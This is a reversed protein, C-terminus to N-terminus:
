PQNQLVSKSPVARAAQALNTAHELTNHYLDVLPFSLDYDGWVLEGYAIRFSAFREPQLYARVDPHRSHKLFPEFDVMQVTHDDFELKIRLEGAPTASVINIIPTSM